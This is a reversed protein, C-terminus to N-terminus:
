GRNSAEKEMMKRIKKRVFEHITIVFVFLILFSLSIMETPKLSAWWQVNFINTWFTDLWRLFGYGRADMGFISATLSAAAIPIGIKALKNAALGLKNAQATLKAQQIIEVFQHATDVEQKVEKYLEDIDFHKRALAYMEIAQQQNSLLPFQYRITFLIFIERLSTFERANKESEKSYTIETLRKSFRFLTIRVFFLLLAMDFYMHRFHRWLPVEPEKNPPGIMVGSHYSFGYWTGWEEWRHYTREKAWDREFQRVANHTKSPSYSDHPSDVNLLKVWHGFEHAEQSSSFFASKLATGGNKLIAASWVYARDDAYLTEDEERHVLSFTKSENSQTIRVPLDLLRTWRCLYAEQSAEMCDDVTRPTQKEPVYEVPVKKLLEKFKDYHNPYPRKFHRFLDNIYLLGDLDPPPLKTESQEPFYIDLILFGTRLIDAEQEERGNTSTKSPWEFLVLRPPLMRAAVPREQCYLFINQAWSTKGWATGDIELWKANEFLVQRTEHTFYEKRANLFENKVGDGHGGSEQYCLPGSNGERLGYGFPYVFRSFTAPTKRPDGCELELHRRNSRM